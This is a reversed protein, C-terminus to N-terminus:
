RKMHASVFAFSDTVNQQQQSAPQGFGPAPALSFGSNVMTPMAAIAMANNSGASDRGMSVMGMGLYQQQQQQMMGMTPQMMGMQPQMMGMQPQMMGMPSQMMGMPAMRTMGMPSPRMATMAAMAALPPQGMTSISSSSSTAAMSMPLMAPTSAAASPLQPASQSRQPALMGLGFPDGGFEQKQPAAAPTTTNPLGFPDSSWPAAATAASMRNDSASASAFVTESGFVSGFDPTASSPASSPWPAASAGFGFFDDGGRTSVPASFASPGSDLLDVVVASAAPTPAPAERQPRTKTARAPPSSSSSSSSSSADIPSADEGDGASGTFPTTSKFM